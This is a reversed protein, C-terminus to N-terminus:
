ITLLEPEGPTILLTNEYHASRRGDKTVVTWNDDMVKIEYTGANVMPEVALTMGAKLKPGRSKQRFNPVEPDEHLLRGVGHGVYERVVSFGNLEVCRQVAVSIDSLHFGERAFKMGEFFSQKTVEILRLNEPSVTGVAYTRAADGHFGNILAGIDISVIDGDNLRKIGPIGHIVEDNVSVCINGPFGNYNKFSPIAGKSRIFDNAISDLEETTVGPKVYSKLLDLTQHVISGAIRMKRIQDSNKIFIAM